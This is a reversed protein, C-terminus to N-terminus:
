DGATQSWGQQRFIGKVQDVAEAMEPDTTMEAWLLQEEGDEDVGEWFTLNGLQSPDPETRRRRGWM